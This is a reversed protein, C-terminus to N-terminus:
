RLRGQCEVTYTPDGVREEVISHPYDKTAVTEIVHGYPCLVM